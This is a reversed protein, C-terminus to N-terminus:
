RAWEEEKLYSTWGYEPEVQDLQSANIFGWYENSLIIKGNTRLRVRLKTKFDGHYKNIGFMLVEDPEVLYLGFSNGCGSYRFYEIGKWEGNKDLAEQIIVMRGDHNEVAQTSDSENFVFLPFKSISDYRPVYPKRPIEDGNEDLHGILSSLSRIERFKDAFAQDPDVFIELDGSRSYGITDRYARFRDVPKLFDYLILDESSIFVPFTISEVQSSTDMVVRNQPFNSLIPIIKAEESENPEQNKETNSCAAILITLLIGLINNLSKM